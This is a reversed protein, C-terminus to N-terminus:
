LIVSSPNIKSAMVRWIHFSRFNDIYYGIFFIIFFIALGIEPKVSTKNAILIYYILISSVISAIYIHRWTVTNEYPFTSFFKYANEKEEPNKIDFVNKLIGVRYIDKIEWYM